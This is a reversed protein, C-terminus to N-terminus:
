NTRGINTLESRSGGQKRIQTTQWDILRDFAQAERELRATMDVRPLNESAIWDWNKWKGGGHALDDESYIVSSPCLKWASSDVKFDAQPLHSRLLNEIGLAWGRRADIDEARSHPVKLWLRLRGNELKRIVAANSYVWPLYIDGILVSYEPWGSVWPGTQMSCAFSIWCWQPETIGRWFIKEAVEPALMHTEYSSLCWIWQDAGVVRTGNNEIELEALRGREVRVDKLSRTALVEVAMGTLWEFSLVRAEDEIPILGLPEQAPFRSADSKSWVERYVPSAWQNLWRVLWAQTFNSAKVGSKWARLAPSNNIHIETMPGNLELPGDKLWLTLGENMVQTRKLLDRQAPLYSKQVIPFPGGGRHYHNGFASTLDIVKVNFGREHLALALTEGRGFASVVAVKWSKV